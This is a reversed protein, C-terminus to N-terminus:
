LRGTTRLRVGTFRRGGYVAKDYRPANDADFRMVEQVEPYRVPTAPPTVESFAHVSTAYIEETEIKLVRVHMDYAYEVELYSFATRKIPM